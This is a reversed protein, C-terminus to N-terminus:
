LYLYTDDENTNDEKKEIPDVKLEKSELTPTISNSGILVASIEMLKAEKVAWFHGNNEAVEKNGIKDIHALWVKHEEPFDEDNVALDIKVYVMGVSHQDILGSKYQSFIETNLSNMISSKGILSTTTGTKAVGLDSWKIVEETLSEFIGVRATTKHIHDHLHPIRDGKEQLTKTFTGDLHVDGHSDLWNYTNGVITRKIVKDNDEDEDDGHLGKLASTKIAVDTISFDTFKTAAKKLDIIGQKNAVLYEIEERKSKFKKNVIM